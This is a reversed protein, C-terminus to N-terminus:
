GVPDLALAHARATRLTCDPLCPPIPLYSRRARCGQRVFLPGLYQVAEPTTPSAPRSNITQSAGSVMESKYHQIQLLKQTLNHRPPHPPSLSTPTPLLSYSLPLFLTYCPM